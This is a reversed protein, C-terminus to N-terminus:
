RPKWGRIPGKEPPGEFDEEVGAEIEELRDRLTAVVIGFVDSKERWQGMMMDGEIGQESHGMEKVAEDVYGLRERHSALWTQLDSTYVDSEIEPEDPNMDEYLANLADVTYEYKYDDPFWRGDEHVKFLMAKIWIPHRKKTVWIREEAAAGPRQTTEFFKLAHEALDSIDSM